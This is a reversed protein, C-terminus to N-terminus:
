AERAVLVGEGGMLSAFCSFGLGELEAVLGAEEEARARPPLLVFACGGGGAGTLKGAWGRRAAAHAVADLAAHGVGLAGLAGHNVRVLQSLAAHQAAAAGGVGGVGRVGGGGGELAELAGASVAAICQLLPGVVAPLARHLAGVGAVLTATDKPVATNVM